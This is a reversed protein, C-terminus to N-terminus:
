TFKGWAWAVAVVGGVFVVQQRTFFLDKTIILCADEPYAGASRQM